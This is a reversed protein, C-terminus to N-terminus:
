TSLSNSTAFVIIPDVEATRYNGTIIPSGNYDYDPQDYCTQFDTILYSSNPTLGESSILNTLGTYTISVLSAGGSTIGTVSFSVGLNDFFTLTNNSYTGGTITSYMVIDGTDGKTNIQNTEVDLFFNLSGNAPTPVQSAIQPQLQIYQM